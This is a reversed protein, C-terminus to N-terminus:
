GDAQSGVFLASRVKFAQSTKKGIDEGVDGMIKTNKTAIYLAAGRRYVRTVFLKPAHM